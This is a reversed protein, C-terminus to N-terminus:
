GLYKKIRKKVKSTEIRKTYTMKMRLIIDNLKSTEFEKLYEDIEEETAINEPILDHESVGLVRGYKRYEIFDLNDVSSSELYKVLKTDYIANLIRNLFEINTQKKTNKEDFCVKIAKNTAIERVDWFNAKVLAYTDENEDIKKLSGTVHFHDVYYIKVKYVKM